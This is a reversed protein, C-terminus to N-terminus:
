EKETSVAFAAPDAALAKLAEAAALSEAEKRKGAEGKGALRGNVLCGCVFHKDHDPGSESLVIYEHTYRREKADCYEQLANKSSHAPTATFDLMKPLIRVIQQLSYGSDIYVAGLISEFLDEMVSRTESIGIKRDGEGVLLYRQLGLRRMSSSLHSKGSLHAKINTLGGEDLATRIGYEYREAKEALLHTVIAASLLSDGFFELVENSQLPVARHLNAENCFSGRTFAQRLLAKDRFSYGIVKEIAPVNKLFDALEKEINM